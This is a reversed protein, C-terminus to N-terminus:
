AAVEALVTNRHHRKVGYMVRDAHEVLEAASRPPGTFTVAGVSFGVRPTWGATGALLEDHLRELRHLAEDRGTGPMLVAFEDGGLRAVRDDPGLARAMVLGVAALVADGAAHGNTDNMAKFGDVDVYAATLPEGTLRMEAIELEAAERFARANPLGTLADTRSLDREEALRGALHSVLAGVLWVVAFRALLNWAPILQSQWPHDHAALEIGTWVLAAVGALATSSRRGGGAAAVFMPLLYGVAIAVETGTVWDLVGIVAILGLAAATLRRAPLRNLWEIALALAPEATRGSPSM